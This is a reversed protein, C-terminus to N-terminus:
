TDAAPVDQVLLLMLLRMMLIKERKAVMKMKWLVMATMMMTIALCSM